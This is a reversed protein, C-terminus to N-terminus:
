AGRHTGLRRGWLRPGSPWLYLPQWWPRLRHDPSHSDDKKRTLLKLNEDYIELNGSLSPGDGTSASYNEDPTRGACKLRCCLRELNRREHDDGVHNQFFFGLRDEVLGEGFKPLHVNKDVGGAGHVCSKWRLLRAM